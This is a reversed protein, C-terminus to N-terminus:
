AADLERFIAQNLQFAVISEAVAAEIQEESLPAEDLAQRYGDKYPKVKEIDAFHYFSIGPSGPAIGLGRGFIAGLAQGGSLDGLYRTYHHAILAAPDGSVERLREAYAAAAPTLAVEEGDSLAALDAKLSEVRELAPDHFASFVADDALGRSAEELAEYVHLLQRTLARLDARSGEGQVLRAMFASNEAQEHAAATGARLRAALGTIAPATTM